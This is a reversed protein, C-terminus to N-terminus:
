SCKHRTSAVHAVRTHSRTAKLPRAKHCINELYLLLLAISTMSSSPGSSSVTEKSCYSGYWRRNSCTMVRKLWQWETLFVRSSNFKMKDCPFVFLGDLSFYFEVCPGNQNSVKQGGPSFFLRM